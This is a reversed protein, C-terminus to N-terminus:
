VTLNAEVDPRYYNPPALQKDFEVFPELDLGISRCHDKGLIASVVRWRMGPDICSEQEDVGPRFEVVARRGDQVLQLFEIGTMLIGKCFSPPSFIVEVLGAGVHRKVSAGLTPRAAKPAQIADALIKPPM